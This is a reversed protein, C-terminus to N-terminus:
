RPDVTKSQTPAHRRPREASRRRGLALSASDGGVADESAARQGALHDGLRAGLAMVTLTPNAFGISPFVSAGVVHLNAHDHSRLNADVVGTAPDTSMRITGSAHHCSYNETHQKAKLRTVRGMGADELADIIPKAARDAAEKDEQSYQWTARLKRWGLANREDTPRVFNEFSPRQEVMGAIEYTEPLEGNLEGDWWGNELNFQPGKPRFKIHLLEDVGSLTRAVDRVSSKSLSRQKADRVVREFSHRAGSRAGVKVPKLMAHRALNRKVTWALPVLTVAVNVLGQTRRAAPNPSLKPWFLGTGTPKPTLKDLLDHPLTPDPEIYGFTVLPHDMLYHGLVGSGKAAESNMLLQTAPMTNMALVFHDGSVRRTVGNALRVVAATIRGSASFELRSVPADLLVRASGLHEPTPNSFRARSVVHFPVAHLRHDDFRPDLHDRWDLDFWASVIDYYPDLDSRRLPWDALDEEELKAIRIGTAPVSGDASMPMQPKGISGGLNMLLHGGFDPYQGHVAPMAAQLLAQSKRHVEAVPGAELMLVDVGHGTLRRAVSQGAAGSGIVVVPARLEWDEVESLSKWAM